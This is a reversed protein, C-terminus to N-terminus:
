IFRRCLYCFLWSTMQGDAESFWLCTADVHVISYVMGPFSWTFSTDSCATRIPLIGIERLPVDWYTSAPKSVQTREPLVWIRIIGKSADANAASWRHAHESFTYPCLGSRWGWHAWAPSNITEVHKSSDKWWLWNKLITRRLHNCMESWVGCECVCLYCVCLCIKEKSGPVFNLPM